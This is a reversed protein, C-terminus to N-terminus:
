NLLYEEVIHAVSSLLYYKTYDTIQYSNIAYLPNIDESVTRLVYLLRKESKEISKLM